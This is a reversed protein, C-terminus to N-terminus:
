PTSDGATPPPGAASGPRFRAAGDLGLDTVLSQKELRARDIAEFAAGLLDDLTPRGFGSGSLGVRFRVGDGLGQVQAACEEAAALMKEAILRGLGSDLRRLLVVFREDAFRGVLDDSRTRRSIAQGVQGILQDRASWQGADDLRRLGEIACAVVVVPENAHYSDLLAHNAHSFFDGRTLVGSAPDTKRLTRLRELLDVRQWALSLATGVMQRLEPSGFAPEGLRGVAILGVTGGTDRVPWIWAWDEPSRAALDALLPGHDADHRCFERGTTAVHGLLGARSATPPGAPLPRGAQSITQLAEGGGRVHYCRVRTAQLHETLSERVLQDFATWLDEPLEGEALWGQLASCFRGVPTDEGPPQRQDALRPKGDPCWAAREAAAGPPRTLHEALDVNPGANQRRAWRAFTQAVLWLAAGGAGLWL